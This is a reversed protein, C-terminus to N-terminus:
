HYRKKFDNLNEAGMSRNCTICIPRLNDLTDTGGEKISIVHGAEFNDKGMLNKCVFCKGEFRDGFHNKWLEDRLSQPIQKRGKPSELEEGNLKAPYISSPEIDELFMKIPGRIDSDIILTQSFISLTLKTIKGIVRLNLNYNFLIIKSNIEKYFKLLEVLKKKEKKDMM